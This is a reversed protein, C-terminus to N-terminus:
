NSISQNFSPFDPSKLQLISTDFVIFDECQRKQQNELLLLLELLMEDLTTQTEQPQQTLASVEDLKSSVECKAYGRRKKLAGHNPKPMVKYDNISMKHSVKFHKKFLLFKQFRRNCLDCDFHFIEHGALHYKFLYLYKYGKTCNNVFCYYNKRPRSLASKNPEDNKLNDHVQTGAAISSAITSCDNLLQQANKNLISCSSSNTNEKRTNAHFCSTERKQQRADTDHIM